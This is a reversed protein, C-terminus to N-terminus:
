LLIRESLDAASVHKLLGYFEALLDALAEDLGIGVWDRQLAAIADEQEGEALLVRHQALLYQYAVDLRGVEDEHFLFLEGVVLELTLLRLLSSVIGLRLARIM